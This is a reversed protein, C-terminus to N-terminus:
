APKSRICFSTFFPLCRCSAQVTIFFGTPLNPFLITNANRILGINNNKVPDTVIWSNELVSEYVLGSHLVVVLLILFTRLNDLFYIRSKM